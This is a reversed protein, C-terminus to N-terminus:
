FKEQEVELLFLLLFKPNIIALYKQFDNAKFMGARFEILGLASYKTFDKSFFLV